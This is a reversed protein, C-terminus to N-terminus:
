LQQKIKLNRINYFRKFNDISNNPLEHCYTHKLYNEFDILLEWQNIINQSYLDSKDNSQEGYARKIEIPLQKAIEKPFEITQGAFNIVLTHRYEESERTMDHKTILELPMNTIKYKTEFNKLFKGM